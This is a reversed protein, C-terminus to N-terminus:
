FQNLEAPKQSNGPESDLKRRSGAVLRRKGSKQDRASPWLKRYGDRSREDSSSKDTQAAKADDDEDGGRQEDLSGMFRARFARETKDVLDDKHDLHDSDISPHAQWMDHQQELQERSEVLSQMRIDLRFYAHLGIVLSMFATLPAVQLDEVEEEGGCDAAADAAAVSIMEYACVRRRRGATCMQTMEGGHDGHSRQEWTPYPQREACLACAPITAETEARKAKAFQICGLAPDCRAYRMVQTCLDDGLHRAVAMADSPAARANPVCFAVPPPLPSVLSEWAAEDGTFGKVVDTVGSSYLALLSIIVQLFLSVSRKHSVREKAITIDHEVTKFRSEYYLDASVQKEDPTLPEGEDSSACCTVVRWCASVSSDDQSNRQGRKRALCQTCWHFFGGGAIWTLVSDVAVLVPVAWLLDVSLWEFLFFEHIWSEPRDDHWPLGITCLLLTVSVIISLVRGLLSFLFGVVCLITYGVFVCLRGLLSEFYGSSVLKAGCIEFNPDIRDRENFILFEFWLEWVFAFPSEYGKLVRDVYDVYDTTKHGIPDGRPRLRERTYRSYSEDLDDRSLMSGCAQFSKIESAAKIRGKKEVYKTLADHAWQSPEISSSVERRYVGTRTRYRWLESELADTAKRLADADERFRAKSIATVLIGSFIPIATIFRDLWLRKEMHVWENWSDEEDDHGDFYSYTKLVISLVSLFQLLLLLLQCFDAALEQNHATRSFRAIEEIAKKLIDTQHTQFQKNGEGYYQNGQVERLWKHLETTNTVHRELWGDNGERFKYSLPFTANLDLGVLASLQEQDIRADGEDKLNSAQIMKHYKRLAELHVAVDERLLADDANREAVRAEAGRGYRSRSASYMM